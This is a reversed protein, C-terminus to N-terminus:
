LNGLGSLLPDAITKAVGTQTGTPHRISSHLRILAVCDSIPLYGAGRFFAM